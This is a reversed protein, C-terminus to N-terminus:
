DKKDTRIKEYCRRNKGGNVWDCRLLYNKGDTFRKVEIQSVGLSTCIAKWSDLEENEPIKEGACIKGLSEAVFRDLSFIELEKATVEQNKRMSNFSFAFAASAVALLLCTCVIESLRM